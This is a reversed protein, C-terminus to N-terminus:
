TVDFSIAVPHEIVKSKLLSWAMEREGIEAPRANADRSRTWSAPAHRYTARCRLM